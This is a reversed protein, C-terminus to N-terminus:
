VARRVTLTLEGTFTTVGQALGTVVYYTGVPLSLIGRMSRTNSLLNAGSTGTSVTMQRVASASPTFTGGVAAAFPAAKPRRLNTSPTPAATFTGGAVGSAAEYVSTVVGGLSVTVDMGTIDIPETATIRMVQPTLASSSSQTTTFEDGSAQATSGDEVKLRTVSLDDSTPANFAGNPIYSM